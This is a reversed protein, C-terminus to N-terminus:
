IWKRHKDSWRQKRGKNLGKRQRFLFARITKRIKILQRGTFKVSDLNELTIHKKTLGRIRKIFIFRKDSKILAQEEESLHHKDKLWQKFKTYEEDYLIQKTQRRIEHIKYPNQSIWGDRIAEHIYDHCERCVPLLDSPQIDVINRYVMHHADTAQKNKCCQCKPNAKLVLDRLQKWEDSKLYEKRYEQRNYKVKHM